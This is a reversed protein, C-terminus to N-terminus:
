VDLLQRRQGPPDAEGPGAGRSGRWRLFLVAGAAGAALGPIAWWWGDAVGSAAPASATPVTRTGASGATAGSGAPLGEGASREARAPPRHGTPLPVAGVGKGGPPAMLGLKKLLAALPGPREAKHWTGEYSGPVGSSTHIWVAGGREQPYVQQLRWPSSDHILWTVNIQHAEMATVLPPRAKRDEEGAEAPDELLEALRGYEGDSVHRSATRGSAPAVLLVSTPGGASATPASTWTLGFVALLLTVRYLRRLRAASRVTNRTERGGATSHGEM